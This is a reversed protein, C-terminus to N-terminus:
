GRHDTSEHNQLLPLKVIFKDTHIIEVTDDTLFKYRRSINDLGIGRSDDSLVTKLQLNNEVVISNGEQFVRIILPSEESIVNHKIANEVLMQVVLPPVKGKVGNLSVDPKLKDGFRIQQLFLYAKLFSAEEEISVVEMERTDLVYRYVESLQKIFKVAKDQDSHVLNTLANLSNFLFHPDVQNKLSEYKAMMGEKQLKETDIAAQRWNFLFTRATLLFTIISTAIISFYMTSRMTGLYFGSLRFISMLIYVAGVTYVLMAIVGVGVRKIPEKTWSIKDNLWDVIGENGFWMAIGVTACFVSVVLYYMMDKLCSTCTLPTTLFGIATLWAILRINARLDRHHAM